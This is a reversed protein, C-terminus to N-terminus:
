IFNNFLVTTAVVSASDKPDKEAVASTQKPIAQMYLLIVAASPM